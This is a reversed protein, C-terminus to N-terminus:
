SGNTGGRTAICSARFGGARTSDTNVRSCYMLMWWWLARYSLRSVYSYEHELNAYRTPDLEGRPHAFASVCANGKCSALYTQCDSATFLQLRRQDEFWCLALFGAVNQEYSTAISSFRQLVNAATLKRQTKKRIVGGSSSYFWSWIQERQV